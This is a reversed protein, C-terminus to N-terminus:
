VGARSVSQLLDRCSHSPVPQHFSWFSGCRKRQADESQYTPATWAWDSTLEPTWVSRQGLDVASGSFSWSSPRCRYNRHSVTEQEPLNLIAGSSACRLFVTRNRCIHFFTRGTRSGSSGGVCGCQPSAMGTDVRGRSTRQDWYGSSVGSSVGGVPLQYAPLFTKASSAKMSTRIDINQDMFSGHSSSLASPETRPVDTFNNFCWINSFNASVM